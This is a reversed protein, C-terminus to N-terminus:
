FQEDGDVMRPLTKRGLGDDINKHEDDGRCEAPAPEGRGQEAVEAIFGAVRV